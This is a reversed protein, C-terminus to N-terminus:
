WFFFIVSLSIKLSPNMALWSIGLSHLSNYLAKELACQTTVPPLRHTTLKRSTRQLLGTLLLPKLFALLSLLHIPLDRNQNAPFCLSSSTFILAPAYATLPSYGHPPSQLTGRPGVLGTVAPCRQQPMKQLSGKKEPRRSDPELGSM